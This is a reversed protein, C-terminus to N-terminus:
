GGVLPVLKVFAVETDIKLEIPDDLEEVQVDNVLVFYGNQEFAKVAVDFQKEWDIPRRKKLLYGNLTREADTPQVLGSFRDPLAVNYERVEEYVRRRILERLTITSTLLSLRMSGQSEGSATQDSITITISM